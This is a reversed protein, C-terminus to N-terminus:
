NKAGYSPMYVFDGIHGIPQDFLAYIPAGAARCRVCFSYDETLEASGQIVRDFFGYIPADLKHRYKHDREIRLNGVEALRDLMERRILLFGAGVAGVQRIRNGGVIEDPHGADDYNLEVVSNIADAMTMTLGAAIAENMNLARKAIVAGVVPKDIACIARGSEVDITLDHDAMLLHTFSRDALVMSAFINRALSVPSVDLPDAVIEVGGRQLAGQLRMAGRFMLPKIDKYAPVGLLVKAM